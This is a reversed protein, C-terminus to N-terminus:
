VPLDLSQAVLKKINRASEKPFSPTIDRTRGYRGKSIIKANIVGQMDLDAIIDSVRRQTLPHLSTSRCLDMYLGYVEGTSLLSRSNREWLSLLAYMVLQYQDPQGRVIDLMRDREIKNEAEDLHEIKVTRFGNREALEGAVRLLEIARRADGHDRAAYAACKEIVGPEVVGDHFAHVKRQDLIDKIQSAHYSPFIIGEQQLSSRVRPDLQDILSASNTIGIFSIKAQGLETNLRTLNYLLTSDTKRILEDVEDLILLIIQRKTDVQKVFTNYVELTPLGTAPVKAGLMESLCAFLRYETDATRRMKCNIYLVKVDIKHEEAVKLIQSTTHKVTVTKGTGTKGYIFLNSPKEMRLCPALIQAIAHTQEDRHPLEDPAHDSLLVSRDRFISDKTIYKELFSSLDQQM